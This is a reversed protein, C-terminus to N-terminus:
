DRCAVMQKRRRGRVSHPFLQEQLLNEGGDFPLPRPEGEAKLHPHHKVEELLPAPMSGFTTPRSSISPSFSSSDGRIVRM